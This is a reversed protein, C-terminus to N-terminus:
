GLEIKVIQEILARKEAPVEIPSLGRECPSPFSVFPSDRQRM